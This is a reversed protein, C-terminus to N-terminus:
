WGNGGEIIGFGPEPEVGPQALGHNDPHVRPGGTFSVCPASTSCGDGSFRGGRVWRLCQMSHPILRHLVRPFGHILPGNWERKCVLGSLHASHRHGPRYPAAYGANRCSECRLHPHWAWAPGARSPILPFSLCTALSERHKWSPGTKTISRTWATGERRFWYCLQVFLLSLM